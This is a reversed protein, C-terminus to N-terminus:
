ISSLTVGTKSWRRVPYRLLKTDSWIMLRHSVVPFSEICSAVYVLWSYDWSYVIIEMSLGSEFPPGTWIVVSFNSFAVPWRDNQIQWLQWFAEKWFTRRGSFFVRLLRKWIGWSLKFLTKSFSRKRASKRPRLAYGPSIFSHELNRQRLTVLDLVRNLM